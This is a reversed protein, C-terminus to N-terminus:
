AIFNAIDQKMRKWWYSKKLDRYMRIGGPYIEFRLRHADRLDEKVLHVNPVCLRGRFRLSRDVDQFKKSKPGLELESAVSRLYQDQM